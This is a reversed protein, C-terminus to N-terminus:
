KSKHTLQAPTLSSGASTNENQPVTYLVTAAAACSLLLTVVWRMELEGQNPKTTRAAVTDMNYNGEEKLLDFFRALSELDEYVAYRSSRLRELVDSPHTTASLVAEDASVPSAPPASSSAARM